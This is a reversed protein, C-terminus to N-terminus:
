ANNHLNRNSIFLCFVVVGVAALDAMVWIEKGLDLPLLPNFVLATIGFIWIQPDDSRKYIKSLQYVFYSFVVVRNLEYYGYPVDGFAAVLLFIIIVFALLEKHNKKFDIKVVNDLIFGLVIFPASIISLILKSLNAVLKYLNGKLKRGLWYGTFSLIFVLVVLVIAFIYDETHMDIYVNNLMELSFTKGFVLIEYLIAVVVWSFDVLISFLFCALKPRLKLYLGIIFGGIIVSFLSALFSIEFLKSVYIFNNSIQYFNQFFVRTLITILWSLGTVLFLIFVFGKWSTMIKRPYHKETM